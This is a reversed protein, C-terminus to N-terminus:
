EHDSAIGEGFKTLLTPAEKQVCPSVLWKVALLKESLSTSVHKPLSLVVTNERNIKEVFKNVLKEIATQEKNEKNGTYEKSYFGVSSGM